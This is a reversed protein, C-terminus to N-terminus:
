LIYDHGKCRFGPRQLNVSQVTNVLLSMNNVRSMHLNSRRTKGQHKLTMVTLDYQNLHLTNTKKGKMKAVKIHTQYILIYADMYCAQVSRGVHVERQYSVEFCDRRVDIIFWCISYFQLHGGANIHIDSFQSDMDTKIYVYM